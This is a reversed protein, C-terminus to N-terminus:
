KKKKEKRVKIKTIVKDIKDNLQEYETTINTPSESAMTETPTNLDLATNHQKPSM